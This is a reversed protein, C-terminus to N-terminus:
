QFTVSKNQENKHSSNLQQYQIVNLVIINKHMEIFGLPGSSEDKYIDGRVAFLFFIHHFPIFHSLENWEFFLFGDSARKKTM